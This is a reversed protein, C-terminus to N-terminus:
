KPHDRQTPTLGLLMTIRAWHGIAGRSHLIKNSGRFSLVAGRADVATVAAGVNLLLQILPDAGEENRIGGVGANAGLSDSEMTSHFQTVSARRSRKTHIPGHTRDSHTSEASGQAKHKGSSASATSTQLAGRGSSGAAAGGGGGAIAGGGFAVATAAVAAAGADGHRITQTAAMSRMQGRRSAADHLPTRGGADAVNPDAGAHMLIHVVAISGGQAAFHMASQGSADQLHLDANHSLLYRVTDTARQSCALHLPTQGLKSMADVNVGSRLAGDVVNVLATFNAASTSAASATNVAAAPKKTRATGGAGAGAVAGSAFQKTSTADNEKEKHHVLLRCAEVSNVYAAAHLATYGQHDVARANVKSFALLQAVSHPLMKTSPPHVAGAAWFLPSRGQSDRLDLKTRKSGRTQAFSLLLKLAKTHSGVVAFHLPTWGNADVVELASAKKVDGVREQLRLIWSTHGFSCARHMANRGYGDVVKWNVDPHGLFTKALAASPQTAALLLATCKYGDEVALLAASDLGSPRPMLEEKDQDGVSLSNNMGGGKSLDSIAAPTTNLIKWYHNSQHVRGLADSVKDSKTAPTTDSDSKNSSNNKGSKLKVFAQLVRNSMMFSGATPPSQILMAHKGGRALLKTLASDPTALLCAYHVAPRGNRDCLTRNAGRKVFVQAQDALGRIASWHLPTKGSSDPRDYWTAKGHHDDGAHGHGGVGGEKAIFAEAIAKLSPLTPASLALVHFISRHEDDLACVDAGAEILRFMMKPRNCYAAWHLPSWGCDDRGNVDCGEKILQVMVGFGNEANNAVIAYDLMNRDHEDPTNLLRKIREHIPETDGLRIMKADRLTAILGEIDARSAFRFLDDKWSKGRPHSHMVEGRAIAAMTNMGLVQLTAVYIL